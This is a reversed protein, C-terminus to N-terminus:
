ALAHVYQMACASAYMYQMCQGMVDCASAHLYQMPETMKIEELIYRVGAVKPQVLYSTLAYVDTHTMNLFKVENFSM